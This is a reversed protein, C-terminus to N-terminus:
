HLAEKFNFELKMCASTIKATTADNRNSFVCMIESMESRSMKM